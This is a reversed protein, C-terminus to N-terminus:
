SMARAHHRLRTIIVNELVRPKAGPRDRLAQRTRKVTDDDIRANRWNDVIYDRLEDITDGYTYFTFDLSREVTFLGDNVAAALAVGAAAHRLPADGADVPGIRCAGVEVAAHTATPHLDVVCGGPTLLRHARRLADVM